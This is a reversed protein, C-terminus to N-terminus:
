FKFIVGMYGGIGDYAPNKPHGFGRGNSIHLRRIGGIAHLSDHIRLTIGADWRKTFNWKTGSPPFSDLTTILGGGLDVFMSVQQLRILHWRLLFAGNVGFTQADMKEGLPDDDDVRFGNAFTFNLFGYVALNKLFYYGIGINATYLRIDRDSDQSNYYEINTEYVTSGWDFFQIKKQGQAFGNSIALCCALLTISRLETFSLKLWFISHKIKAEKNLYKIQIRQYFKKKPNL